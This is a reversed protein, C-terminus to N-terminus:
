REGRHTIKYWGQGFATAKGVHLFEGARLLPMFPGIEGEFTIEGVWGKLVHNLNRHKSYRNEEVWKLNNSLMSVKDAKEGMEKFNMDLPANCYFSSLANIRDRLRKILPGFEPKAWQGKQKLLVPTLFEIELKDFSEDEHCISKLGMPKEQPRVMRDKGQFVKEWIGDAKMAELSELDYKGRGVGIGQRGLEEFTVIFYPLYDQARGVVVLDFCLTDGPKYSSVPDLPPKIVFPRPIDRNLRLRDSDPPVVPNFINSYPCNEHVLCSPCTAKLDHCVLRRFVTGFAGRLTIGKNMRPLEIRDLAKLNLRYLSFYFKDFHNM